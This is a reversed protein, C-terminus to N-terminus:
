MLVLLSLNSFLFFRENERCSAPRGVLQGLYWRGSENARAAVPSVQFPPAHPEAAHPDLGCRRLQFLPWRADEQWGQHDVLEALLARVDQRDGFVARMCGCMDSLLSGRCAPFVAAQPADPILNGPPHSEHALKLDADLSEYSENHYLMIELKALPWHLLTMPAGPYLPQDLLAKQEGPAMRLFPLVAENLEPAPASPSGLSGAEPAQEGQRPQGILDDAAGGALLDFFSSWPTLRVLSNGVPSRM